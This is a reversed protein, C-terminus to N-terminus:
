IFRHQRNHKYTFGIFSAHDIDAAASSSSQQASLIDLDKWKNNVDKYVAMSAPDSFDDFHTNDADSQLPPVFPPSQTNRLDLMNMGRFYSHRAVEQLSCLRIDRHCVLATVLDWAEPTLNDDAEKSAFDPRHLVEEWHYVNRWVDDATPGTFPSYSAYF